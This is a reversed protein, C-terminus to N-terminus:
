LASQWKKEVRQTIQVRMQMFGGESISHYDHRGSRMRAESTGV